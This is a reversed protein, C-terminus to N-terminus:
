LGVAKFFEKVAKQWRKPDNQKWELFYPSEYIKTYYSPKFNNNEGVWFRALGQKDPEHEVLRNFEEIEDQLLTYFKQDILSYMQEKQPDKVSVGGSDYEKDRLKPSPLDAGANEIDKIDELMIQAAHDTEHRIIKQLEKIQFHFEDVNFISADAILYISQIAPDWLGAWDNSTGEIKPVFAKDFFLFVMIDKRWDKEKLLHPITAREFNNLYKWNMFLSFPFGKERHSYTEKSPFRVYEQCALIVKRMENINQMYRLRDKDKEFNSRFVDIKKLSRYWVQQAYNDIAWLKIAEIIESPAGFVAARKNFFNASQVIDKYKM